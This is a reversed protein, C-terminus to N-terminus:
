GNHPNNDDNNNNNTKKTKRYIIIVVVVIVALVIIAPLISIVGIAIAQIGRVFGNAMNGAAEAFRAGFPAEPEPEPMDEPFIVESLWISVSSYHINDDFINRQRERSRINSQVEELQRNLNRRETNSLSDDTLIDRLRAEQERLDDLTAETHEFNATVNEGSQNLSVLNFEDEMVMLFEALRDSHIRFTFSAHREIEPFRMDRGQVHSNEIFGNMQAVTNLIIRRGQMFQTTQLQLDATYVMRRGRSDAPTLLPLAVASEDAEPTFPAAEGAIGPIVPIDTVPAYDVEWIDAAEPAPAPASPAAPVSPATAPAPAACASGIITLIILLSILTIFRKM